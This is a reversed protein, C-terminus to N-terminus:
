CASMQLFSSDLEFDLQESLHLRVEKKENYWATLQEMEPKASQM